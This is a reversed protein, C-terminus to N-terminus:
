PRSKTYNKTIKIRKDSKRNYLLFKVFLLQIQNLYMEDNDFDGNIKFM